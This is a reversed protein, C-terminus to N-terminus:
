KKKIHVSGGSTRLYLEPGGGNLKAQVEHKSLEGLVTIPFETSVHGGSSRANLNAAIDGALYVTVSGGSTTLSCDSQPQRTITATVSGGSTDAKISGMVEEVTISGGSTQAEVDGGASKIRIGGGSTHALVRAKTRDIHISGGSTNVDVNGEVEGIQIGGGSTRGWVNGKIGDFHLGGGSTKSRAEGEIDNVTVGGGSTKLEVNYVPPVSIIFEVRLRNFVKDWFGHFGDHKYDANIFVDNGRQEFDITFDTFIDKAKKENSTGAERIVEIGVTDGGAGRVKISGLDTEVTLKGGAEVKFSKTISDKVGASAPPALALALAAALVTASKMRKLQIKM